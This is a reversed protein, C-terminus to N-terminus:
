EVASHRYASKGSSLPASVEGAIRGMRASLETYKEKWHDAEATAAAIKDMASSQLRSMEARVDGVQRALDKTYADKYREIDAAHRTDAKVIEEKLLRESAERAEHLRDAQAENERGLDHVTESLEQITSTQGLITQELRNAYEVIQPGFSRLGSIAQADGQDDLSRVTVAARAAVSKTTQTKASITKGM